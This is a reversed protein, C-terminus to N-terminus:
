FSMGRVRSDNAALESIKEWTSDTSGDDVWVIELGDVVSDLAAVLRDNMDRVNDEENMAPIVVSLEPADPM